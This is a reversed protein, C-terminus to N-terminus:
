TREDRNIIHLHHDRMDTTKAFACAVAVRFDNEGPGPGLSEYVAEATTEASSEQLDLEVPEGQFSPLPDKNEGEYTSIMRGKGAKLSTEFFSRLPEGDAARSLVSMAVRNSPLVCGSIRPTFNPADPEFTWSKLGMDLIAIPSGEGRPDIDSTQRGNSVAIGAGLVLAPYILLDSNGKKSVEPDTPKTWVANGEVVLKRARSSPSRGTIAYIVINFAGSVDRGVAVLRGPYTMRQLCALPKKM